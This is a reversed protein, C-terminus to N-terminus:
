LKDAALARAHIEDQSFRAQLENLYDRWWARDLDDVVVEVMIVEDREVAGGPTIWAGAAPARLYATVGGFREVLEARTRASLQEDFRQGRADYGPLLIQILHLLTKRSIADTREARPTKDRGFLPPVVSTFGSRGTGAM